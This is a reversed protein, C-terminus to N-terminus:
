PRGRREGGDGEGRWATRRRRRPPPRAPAERLRRTTQLERAFALEEYPDGEPDAEGGDIGPIVEEIQEQSHEEGQDHHAAQHALQRETVEGHHPTEREARLDPAGVEYLDFHEVV